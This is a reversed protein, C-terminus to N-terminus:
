IVSIWIFRWQLCTMASSAHLTLCLGLLDAKKNQYRHSKEAQTCMQQKWSFFLQIDFQFVLPCLLQSVFVDPERLEDDGWSFHQVFSSKIEPSFLSMQTAWLAETKEQMQTIGNEWCSCRRGQCKLSPEAAPCSVWEIWSVWLLAASPSIDVCAKNSSNHLFNIRAWWIREQSM